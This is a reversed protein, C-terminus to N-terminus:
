RELRDRGAVTVYFMFEVGDFESFAMFEEADTDHHRYLSREGEDDAHVSLEALGALWEFDATPVAFLGSAYGTDFSTM